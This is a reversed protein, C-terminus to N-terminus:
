IKSKLNCIASQLNCIASKLNCIVSQLNPHRGKESQLTQTASKVNRIKLKRSSSFRRGWNMGKPVSDDSALDLWLEGSPLHSWNKALPFLFGIHQHADHHAEHDAAVAYLLKEAKELPLAM